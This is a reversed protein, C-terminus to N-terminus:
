SYHGGSITANKDFINIPELLMSDYKEDVNVIHKKTENLKISNDISQQTEWEDSFVHKIVTYPVYTAPYENELTLMATEKQLNGVTIRIYSVGEPITVIQGSLQGGM